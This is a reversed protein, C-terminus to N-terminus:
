DLLRIKRNWKIQAEKDSGHNTEEDYQHQLKEFEQYFKKYNAKIENKYNKTYHSANLADQVKKGIFFGIVIHGQEHTILQDLNEDKIRSRDLYSRSSNPTITLAVKVKVDKSRRTGEINFGYSYDIYTMSAFSTNDPVPGKFFSIDIVPIDKPISSQAFSDSQAFLLLIFVSRKLLSIFSFLLKSDM